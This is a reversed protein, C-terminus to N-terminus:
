LGLIEVQEFIDFDGRNETIVKSIGYAAMTAVLNADHIRKGKLDHIRILERLKTRVTEKEDVVFCAASFAAINALADVPRLSLGNASIPRTAVVLYERIVQGSMVVTQGKAPRDEFVSLAKSHTSRAPDTAALLVNTDVFVADDPMTM